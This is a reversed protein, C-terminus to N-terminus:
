CCAPSGCRAPTSCRHVSAFVWWYSMHRGAARYTLLLLLPWLSLAFVAYPGGLHLLRRAVFRRYGHEILSAPLFLGAVLFSTGIVVLASPGFIASLM